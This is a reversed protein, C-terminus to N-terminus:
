RPLLEYKDKIHSDIVTDEIKYRRVKFGVQRLAQVLGVTREVIDTYNNSRGTCFADKTSPTKEMLLKAVRFNFGLCVAKFNQLEEGFVPDITIHSEYYLSTM